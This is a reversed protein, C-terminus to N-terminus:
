IEGVKTYTGDENRRYIPGKYHRKKYDEDSYVLGSYQLNIVNLTNMDELDEAYEEQYNWKKKEGILVGNELELTEEDWCGYGEAFNIAGEVDGIYSYEEDIEDGIFRHYLPWKELGHKLSLVNGYFSSEGEYHYPSWRYNLVVYDIKDKNEELFELLTGKLEVKTM